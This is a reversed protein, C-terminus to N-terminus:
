MRCRSFLHFSVWVLCTRSLCDFKLFSNSSTQLIKFYPQCHQLATPRRHLVQRWRSDKQLRACLQCRSAVVQLILLWSQPLFRQLGYLSRVFDRRNTDREATPSFPVESGHSVAGGKFHFGAMTRGINHFCLIQKHLRFVAVSQVRLDHFSRLCRIVDPECCAWCAQNTQRCCGVADLLRGGGSRWGDSTSATQMSQWFGFDAAALGEWQRLGFLGATSWCNGSTALNGALFLSCPWRLWRTEKNQDRCCKQVEASQTGFHCGKSFNHIRHTRVSSDSIM